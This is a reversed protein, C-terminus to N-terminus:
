ILYQPGTWKFDAWSAKDYLNGRGHKAPQNWSAAKFIVGSEKDVFGWVSGKCVVKVYKRGFKFNVTVPPLQGKIFKKYDDVIYDALEALGQTMNPTTKM